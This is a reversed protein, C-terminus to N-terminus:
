HILSSPIYPLTSLFALLLIYVYSLHSSTSFFFQPLSSLCTVLPLSSFIHLFHTHSSLNIRCSSPFVKLPVPSFPFFSFPLFSLFAPHSYLPLSSYSFLIDTFSPLLFPLYSLFISSTSYSLSPFFHPFSPRLFPM